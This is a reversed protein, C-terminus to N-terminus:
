SWTFDVLAHSWSFGVNGQNRFFRLYGWVGKLGFGWIALGMTPGGFDRDNFVYDPERCAAMLGM